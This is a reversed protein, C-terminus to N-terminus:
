HDKEYVSGSNSIELLVHYFYGRFIQLGQQLVEHEEWELIFIENMEIAKAKSIKAM